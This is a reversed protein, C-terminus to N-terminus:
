LSMGFDAMFRDLRDLETLFRQGAETVHYAKRAGAAREEILGRTQLETLYGQLRDTSLNTLTLLYSIGIGPEKKAAKLIDLVIRNRSRYERAM